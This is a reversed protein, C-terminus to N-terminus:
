TDESCKFFFFFVRWGSIMQKRRYDPFGWLGSCLPFYCFVFFWDRSSNCYKATPLPWSFRPHGLPFCSSLSELPSFLVGTPSRQFHYCEENHSQQEDKIKHPEEQEEQLTSFLDRKKQTFLFTSVDSSASYLICCCHPYSVQPSPTPSIQLKFALILRSLFIYTRWWVTFPQGPRTPPASIFIM